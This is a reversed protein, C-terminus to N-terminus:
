EPFELGEDDFPYEYRARVITGLLTKASSTSAAAKAAAQESKATAVERIAADLERRAAAVKRAAADRVRRATRAEAHEAEISQSLEKRLEMERRAALAQVERGDAWLGHM